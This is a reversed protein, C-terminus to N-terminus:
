HARPEDGRTPKTRVTASGAARMAWGLAASILLIGVTFWVGPLFELEMSFGTLWVGGLFLVLFLIFSAM